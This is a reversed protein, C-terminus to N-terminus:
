RGDSVEVHAQAIRRADEIERIAEDFFAVSALWEGRRVYRRGRDLLVDLSTLHNLANHRANGDDANLQEDTLLACTKCEPVRM